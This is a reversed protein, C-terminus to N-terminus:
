GPQEGSLVSGLARRVHDTTVMGRLVGDGDLVALAGLTRLSESGLLDELPEDAAVCSAHGDHEDLVEAVPLMPHGARIAADVREKRLVGVFHGDGDVVPFWPDGYRHFFADDADRTATDAPITVPARDMVDAATVGDLRASIASSAVASRAAQALFFGLVGMWLGNAVSGSLALFVGLGMLLYGFGQGLYGSFRTAKNRDGTLKWAISRAIRGGDLPFAPILNFFFLFANIAALWGLLALAPTPNNSQLSAADLFASSGSMAASIGSCLLIILLTVAPGAASVRFEEGPSRTDRDMKAVGGFFWLDIGSIGIGAHRAAMAHGLEHLILSLFFLGAAAVALLYSQTDSGALARHFYDSMWYIMLFLVFFWSYSAGIRIGFIKALQISNGTGM